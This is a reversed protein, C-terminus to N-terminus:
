GPLWVKPATAEAASGVRRAKIRVYPAIFQSRHGFAGADAYPNSHMPESLDEIVFGSRCLGGILEEWRHLFELTGEERHLSGRVQPLPGSRYYPEVVEYGKRSPATDAQLSTPQKHQSVYIGGPVIVRAVERYIATVDPAYCSSVPQMVLDFSAAPLASLDDMSAEVARIDLGRETAVQRDIALQEPSIDVVTVVAGAAAYLASQRGGGSALCLMRRGRLDGFWAVDVKSLPNAVDDDGAPRTFRQQNRARQDWARRNHDRAANTKDPDAM